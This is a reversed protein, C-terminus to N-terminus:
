KNRPTPGEVQQAQPSPGGCRADVQAQMADDLVAGRWAKASCVQSPTLGLAGRLDAGELSTGALNAQNLVTGSFHAGGLNAGRLDADILIANGLQAGGLDAGPLKASWLYAGRLDAHDMHAGGLDAGRLDTRELNARVLTAGILGASYLVAGDLRADVLTANKLSAYSFNADRLDARSLDVGELNARNLNARSLRAGDATAFRLSSQGLDAGSLDADSLFAGEFDARWLHANALFIGYAQAYRFEVNNLRPGTVGARPNDGATAAAQSTPRASISAETLDAYPDLGFSWLVTPAWRRINAPHYQPARSKDHPVGVITGVSLFLLVIGLAIGSTAPNVGKIGGSLRETWRRESAWKEQPRGTRTTAHLAISTAIAVLSAHLITGHIEQLTLYRAWFLLLTIPAMWYALGISVYKEVLLTSSAEQNIWRFHARLLGAVIGATGDEVAHGDPFVAPLELAANWMRQLYFHFLLYLVLLLLPVLLYSEAIPLAAAATRSHWLPIAASDTLLQVDKTKWIALWSLLSTGALTAFYRFASRSSREFRAAAEFEMIHPPLLADRLNAGAVQRPVLGMATELMAGELNAGEFNTGVLCADELDARVLCADRLDALLLDSARLNADHLDAYRLHVGILEHGEVDAGALDAKKGSLGQSELWERHLALKEELAWDSAPASPTASPPEALEPMPVAATQVEPAPSAVNEAAVASLDTPTPDTTSDATTITPKGAAAEPLVPTLVFSDASSPLESPGSEVEGGSPEATETPTLEIPREALAPNEPESNHAIQAPAELDATEIPVAQADQLRDTPATVPARAAAELPNKPDTLSETAAEESALVQADAAPGLSTENAREVASESSTETAGSPTRKSRESRPWLFRLRPRRGSTARQPEMRMPEPPFIEALAEAASPLEAAPILGSDSNVHIVGAVGTETSKAQEDSKETEQGLELATPRSEVLDDSLRRPFLSLM